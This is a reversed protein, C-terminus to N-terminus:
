KVLEPNETLLPNMALIEGSVPSFIRLTKGQHEIEALLDGKKINEGPKKLQSFSVTAPLIFCCTM